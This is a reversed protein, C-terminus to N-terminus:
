ILRPMDCIFACHPCHGISPRCAPMTIHACVQAQSASSTSATVLSAARRIYRRNGAGVCRQRRQIPCSCPPRSHTFTASSQLKMLASHLSGSAGCAHCKCGVCCRACPEELPSQERGMSGLPGHCTCVHHWCICAHALGCPTKLCARHTCLPLHVLFAKCLCQATAAGAVAGGEAPSPDFARGSGLPM